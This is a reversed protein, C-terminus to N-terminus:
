DHDKKIVTILSEEKMQEYLDFYFLYYLYM